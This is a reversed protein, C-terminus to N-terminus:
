ASVKTQVKYFPQKCPRRIIDTSNKEDIVKRLSVLVLILLIHVSDFMYPNTLAYIVYCGYILLLSPRRIFFYILIFNTFIFVVAYIFGVQNLLYVAQLEYNYADTYDRTETMKSITNGLGRGLFLSRKDETLDNILLTVQENRTALSHEGKLALTDSVYKQVTTFSVLFLIMISMLLVVVKGRTWMINKSTYSVIFIITAIWFALNGAIVTAALLTTILFLKYKNKELYVWSVFLAAPVVSNGLIQVRYFKGDYTYLDGFGSNNFYSRLLGSAYLDKNFITFLEIGILVIAQILALAIFIFIYWRNPPMFYAILVLLFIGFFRIALFVDNQKVSTAYILMSLLMFVNLYFLMPMNANAKKFMSAIIDKFSITFLLFLSPSILFALNQFPFQRTICFLCTFFSANILISGLVSQRIKLEHMLKRREPHVFNSAM